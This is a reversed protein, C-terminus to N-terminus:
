KGKGKKKPKIGKKKMSWAVAWPNDISPNKKLAKVIKEYGEPAVEQLKSESMHTCGCSGGVELMGCESCPEGEGEAMKSGSCECKGDVELMDCQSCPEASAENLGGCNCEGGVPMMGCVPCTGSDPCECQDVPCGCGACSEEVSRVGVPADGAYSGIPDGFKEQLMSKIFNENRM